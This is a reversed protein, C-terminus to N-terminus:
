QLRGWQCICELVPRRDFSGDNDWHFLPLKCAAKARQPRWVITAALAFILGVLLILGRLTSAKDEM